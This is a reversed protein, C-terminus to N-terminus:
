SRRVQRLLAIRQASSLPALAVCLRAFAADDLPGAATKWRRGHWGAVPSQGPLTVLGDGDDPFEHNNSLRGMAVRIRLRALRTQEPDGNGEILGLTAARAAILAPTFLEDDPLSWLIVAYKHPQGSESPMGIAGCNKMANVQLM